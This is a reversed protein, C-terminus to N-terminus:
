TSVADVVVSVDAVTTAVSGSVEEGGGVDNPVFGNGRVKEGNGRVKEGNVRRETM